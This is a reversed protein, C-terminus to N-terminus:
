EVIVEQKSDFVILKIPNNALVVQVLEESFFEKYIEV